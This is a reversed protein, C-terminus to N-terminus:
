RKSKRRMKKIEKETLADYDLFMKQSRKNIWDPNLHYAEVIKDMNKQNTVTPEPERGRFIKKISEYSAGSKTSIQRGSFGTRKKFDLLKSWTKAFHDYDWPSILKARM